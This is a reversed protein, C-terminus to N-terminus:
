VTPRARGFRPSCRSPIPGFSVGPALTVRGGFAGDLARRGRESLDDGHVSAVIGWRDPAPGDEILQLNLRHPEGRDVGYDLWAEVAMADATLGSWAPPICPQRRTLEVIVVPGLPPSDGQTTLVDLITGLPTLTKRMWYRM